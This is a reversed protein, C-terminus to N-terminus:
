YGKRSEEHPFEFGTARLWSGGGRRGVLIGLGPPLAGTLWGPPAEGATRPGPLPTARGWRGHVTWAGGPARVWAAELELEGGAPDLGPPRARELAHLEAGAARVIGRGGDSPVEFTLAVGDPRAELRGPGLELEGQAGRVLLARGSALDVELLEVTLAEPARGATRWVLFTAGMLALAAVVWARRRLRVFLPLLLLTLALDARGARPPSSTVPPRGRVLLNRAERALATDPQEASWGLVEVSPRDARPLVLLALGEAGLPARVPVPVTLRRTGALFPGRVRTQGDAGCDLVFEDLPGRAEVELWWLRNGDSGTATMSAGLLLALGLVLTV